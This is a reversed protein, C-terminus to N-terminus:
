LLLSFSHFVGGNLFGNVFDVQAVLLAIKSIPLTLRGGRAKGRQFLDAPFVM